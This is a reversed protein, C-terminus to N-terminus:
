VAAAALTAVAEIVEDVVKLADAIKKLGKRADDTAKIAKDGAALAIKYRKDAEDLEAGILGVLERFVADLRAQVPGRSEVPTEHLLDTLDNYLRQQHERLAQHDM